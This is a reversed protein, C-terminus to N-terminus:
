AATGGLAVRVRALLDPVVFPKIVYDAAGERAGRALSSVASRVTCFLVPTEPAVDGARIKRCFDFGVMDPLMVDLLILDPAHAAFLRLGEKGTGTAFVEYGAEGLVTKLLLRYEEEDEVVLIKGKAVAKASYGM